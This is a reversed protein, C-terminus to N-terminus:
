LLFMTRPMTMIPWEQFLGEFSISPVLVIMCEASPACYQLDDRSMTALRSLLPKFALLTTNVPAFCRLTTASRRSLVKITAAASQQLRAKCWPLATHTTHYRRMRHNTNGPQHNNFLSIRFARSARVAQLTSLHIKVENGSHASSTTM